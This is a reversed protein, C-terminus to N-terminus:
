RPSLLTQISRPYPRFDGDMATGRGTMEGLPPLDAGLPAAAYECHHGDYYHETSFKTVSFEFTHGATRCRAVANVADDSAFWFTDPPAFSCEQGDLVSPSLFPIGVEENWNSRYCDFSQPGNALREELWERGDEPWKEACGGLMATQLALLFVFGTRASSTSASDKKKLRKSLLFTCGKSLSLAFPFQPDYKLL